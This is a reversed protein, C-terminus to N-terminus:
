KLMKKEKKVVMNQFETSVKTMLNYFDETQKLRIMLDSIMQKLKISTDVNTYLLVSINNLLNSSIM